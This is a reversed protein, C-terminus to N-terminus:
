EACQTWYRVAPIRSSFSTLNWSVFLRVPFPIDNPAKDGLAMCFYGTSCGTGGIGAAMEELFRAAFLGGSIDGEPLSLAQAAASAGRM